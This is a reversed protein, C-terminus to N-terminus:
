IRSTPMVKKLEVKDNDDVFIQDFDGSMIPGGLIGKHVIENQSINIMFCLQKIHGILYSRKGLSDMQNFQLDNKDSLNLDRFVDALEKKEEIENLVSKKIRNRKDQYENKINELEKTRDKVADKENAQIKKRFIKLTLKYQKMQMEDVTKKARTIWIPSSIYDELKRKVENDNQREVEIVVKGPGIMKEKSQRNKVWEFRVLVLSHKLHENFPYGIHTNLKHKSEKFWLNISIHTVFSRKLLNFVSQFCTQLYDIEANQALEMKVSKGIANIYPQLQVQDLNFKKFEENGDSNIFSIKTFNLQILTIDPFDEEQPYYIHFFSSIKKKKLNSKKTM